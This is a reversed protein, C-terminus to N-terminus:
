AHGWFYRWLPQRLEINLRTWARTWPVLLTRMSSATTECSSGPRRAWLAHEPGGRGGVSENQPALRHLGAPGPSATTPRLSPLRSARISGILAPEELAAEEYRRAAAGAASFGGFAERVAAELSSTDARGRGSGCIRREAPVLLPLLAGFGGISSFGEVGGGPSSKVRLWPGPISAPEISRDSQLDKEVESM